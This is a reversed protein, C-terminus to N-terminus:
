PNTGGSAMEEGEISSNVGGAGSVNGKEGKILSILIESDVSGAAVKESPFALCSISFNRLFWWYNGRSGYDSKLSILLSRSPFFFTHDM